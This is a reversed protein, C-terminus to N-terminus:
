GCEVRGALLDLHEAVSGHRVDNCDHTPRVRLTVPMAGGRSRPKAMHPPPRMSRVWAMTGSWPMSTVQVARIPPKVMM